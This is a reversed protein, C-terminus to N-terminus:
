NPKMLPKFNKFITTNDGTICFASNKIIINVPIFIIEKCPGIIAM